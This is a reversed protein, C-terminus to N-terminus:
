CARSTGNACVKHVFGQRGRTRDALGVGEEELIRCVRARKTSDREGRVATSVERAIPDTNSEFICNLDESAASDQALITPEPGSWPRLPPQSSAAPKCSM